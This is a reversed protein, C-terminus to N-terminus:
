KKKNIIELKTNYFLSLEEYLEASEKRNSKILHEGNKIDTKGDNFNTIEETMSKVMLEQDIIYETDAVDIVKGSEDIKFKPNSFRKIRSRESNNPFRWKVKVQENLSLSSNGNFEPIFENNIFDLKM